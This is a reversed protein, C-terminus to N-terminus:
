SGVKLRGGADILGSVRNHVADAEPLNEAITQMTPVRGDRFQISNYCM